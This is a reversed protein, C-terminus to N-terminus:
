NIKIFKKNFLKDGAQVSIIYMGAVFSTVNIKFDVNTKIEKKLIVKSEADSIKIFATKDKANINLSLYDYTPNPYIKVNFNPDTLEVESINSNKSEEGSYYTIQYQYQGYELGEDMFVYEQTNQNYTQDSINAIVSFFSDDKTREIQYYGVGTELAPKWKLGISKEKEKEAELLLHPQILGCWEFKNIIKNQTLSVIETTFQKQENDISLTLQSVPDEEIAIHEYKELQFCVQHLIVPQDKEVYLKGTNGSCNLLIKNFGSCGDVFRSNDDMVCSKNTLVATGGKSCDALFGTTYSSVIGTTSPTYQLKYCVIKKVCNSEDICGNKVYRSPLWKMQQGFLLSVNFILVMVLTLNKINKM